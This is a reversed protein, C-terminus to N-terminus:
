TEVAESSSRKEKEVSLFIEQRFTWVTDGRLIEIRKGATLADIDEHRFYSLFSKLMFVFSQLLVLFESTFSLVSLIILLHAHSCKDHPSMSFIIV